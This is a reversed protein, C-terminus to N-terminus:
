SKLAAIRERTKIKTVLHEFDMTARMVIEGQPTTDIVLAEWGGLLEIEMTAGDREHRTIRLKDETGRIKAQQNGYEIQSMLDWFERRIGADASTLGMLRRRYYAMNRQAEPDRRRWRDPAGEGERRAHFRTALRERLPHGAESEYFSRYRNWHRNAEEFGGVVYGYGSNRLPHTGGRIVRSVALPCALMAEEIHTEAAETDGSMEAAIYQAMAEDTGATEGLRTCHRALGKWDNALTLLRTVEYRAGLPDYPRTAREIRRYIQLAEKAQEQREKMRALQYYSRLFPRNDLDYWELRDRNWRFQARELAALGRDAISRVIGEHEVKTGPGDLSQALDEAATLNWGEITTLERLIEVARYWNENEIYRDAAKHLVSAGPGRFTWEGAWGRGAVPEHPGHGPLPHIEMPDPHVGATAYRVEFPEADHWGDETQIKDEICQELAYSEQGRIAEIEVEEREDDENFFRARLRKRMRLDPPPLWERGDKETVIATVHRQEPLGDAPRWESWDIMFHDLTELVGAIDDARTEREWWQGHVICARITGDYYADITPTRGLDHRGRTRAGGFDLAEPVRTEVEGAAIRCLKAIFMEGRETPEEGSEPMTDIVERLMPVGDALLAWFRRERLVQVTMWSREAVDTGDNEAPAVDLQPLEGLYRRAARCQALAREAKPGAEWGRTAGAGRIELADTVAIRESMLCHEFLTRLRSGVRKTTRAGVLEVMEATLIRGEPAGAGATVRELIVELTAADSRSKTPKKTM